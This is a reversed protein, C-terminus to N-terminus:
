LIIADYMKKFTSLVTNISLSLVAILGEKLIRRREM